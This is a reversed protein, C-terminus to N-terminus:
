LRNKSVATITINNYMKGELLQSEVNPSPALLSSSNPHNEDDSAIPPDASAKFDSNLAEHGAEPAIALSESFWSGTPNFSVQQEKFSVLKSTADTLQLFLEQDDSM